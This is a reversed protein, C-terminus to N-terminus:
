IGSEGLDELDWGSCNKSISASEHIKVLPILNIIGSYVQAYPWETFCSLRALCQGHLSLLSEGLPELNDIAGSCPNPSVYGM